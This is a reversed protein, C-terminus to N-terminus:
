MVCCLVYLLSAWLFRLGRIHIKGEKPVKNKRM